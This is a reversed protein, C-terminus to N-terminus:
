SQLGQRNGTLRPSPKRQRQSPGPPRRLCVNFPGCVRVRALSVHVSVVVTSGGRGAAACVHGGGQAPGSTILPRVCMHATSHTLPVPTPTPAPAPAPVRGDANGKTVGVWLPAATYVSVPLPPRFTPTSQPAHRPPRPATNHNVRLDSRCCAATHMSHCLPLTQSVLAMVSVWAIAGSSSM